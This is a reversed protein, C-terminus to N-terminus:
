FDQEQRRARKRSVVGQERGAADETERSGVGQEELKALERNLIAVHRMEERIIRDVHHRGKAEPIYDRLFGYFFVTDKEAAVATSLIQSLTEEGTLSANPGNKGEWGHLGAMGKLYFLMENGPDYVQVGKENESLNQRMRTFTRAHDNEMRELDLFLGCHARSAPAETAERYYEAANNEIEIAVTLVESANYTIINM